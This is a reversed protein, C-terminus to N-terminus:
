GCPRCRSLTCCHPRPDPNEHSFDQDPNQFRLTKASAQSGGLSEEALLRNGEIVLEVAERLNARAEEM